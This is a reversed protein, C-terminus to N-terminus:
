PIIEIKRVINNKINNEVESNKSKMEFIKHVFIGGYGM